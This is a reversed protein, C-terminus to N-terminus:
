ILRGAAQVLCSAAQLAFYTGMGSIAILSLGPARAPLPDGLVQAVRLRAVGGFAAAGRVATSSGLAWLAAAVPRPGLRDLAVRDARLESEELRHQSWWRLLPIYFFVESASDLGARVLPELSRVHEREHLLVADLAEASLRRVLGDSVLVRPRLAGSCFATPADAALCVVRHLGTRTMSALLADPMDESIQLARTCAGARSLLWVVRGLWVALSAVVLPLAMRTGASVWTDAYTLATLCQARHPCLLLGGFCTMVGLSLGTLVAHQRRENVARRRGCASVSSALCSM